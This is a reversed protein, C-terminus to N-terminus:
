EVGGLSVFCLLLASAAKCPRTRERKKARAVPAISVLRCPPNRSPRFSSLTQRQASQRRRRRRPRPYRRRCGKWAAPPALLLLDGRAAAATHALFCCCSCCNTTCRSSLSAEEGRISVHPRDSARRILSCSRRRPPPPALSRSSSSAAASAVVGLPCTATYTPPASGPPSDIRYTTGTTYKLWGSKPSSSRSASSSNPKSCGPPIVMGHAADRNSRAAATAAAPPPPFFTGPQHYCCTAVGTAPTCVCMGRLLPPDQTGHPNDIRRSNKKRRTTLKSKKETGQGTEKHPNLMHM